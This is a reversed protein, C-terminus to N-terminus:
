PHLQAAIMGASRSSHGACCTGVNDEYHKPHWRRTQLLTHVASQKSSAPFTQKSAWPGVARISFPARYFRAHTGLM